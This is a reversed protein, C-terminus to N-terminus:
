FILKINFLNFIEDSLTYEDNGAVMNSIVKMEGVKDIYTEVDKAISGSMLIQFPNYTELYVQPGLLNVDFIEDIALRLLGVSEEEYGVSQLSSHKQTM